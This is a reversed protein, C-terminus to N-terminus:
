YSAGGGSGLNLSFIGYGLAAQLNKIQQQSHLECCQRRLVPEWGNLPDTRSTLKQGMPWFRERWPTQLPWYLFSHLHQHDDLTLFYLDYSQPAKTWGTGLSVIDMLLLVHGLCLWSHTLALIALERGTGRVSQDLGKQPM